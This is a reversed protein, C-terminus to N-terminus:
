DKSNNIKPGELWTHTSFDYTILSPCESSVKLTVSTVGGAASNAEYNCAKVSSGTIQSQDVFRMEVRADAKKVLPYNSEGIDVLARITENKTCGAMSVAVLAVLLFKNLPM